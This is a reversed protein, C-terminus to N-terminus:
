TGSNLAGFTHKIMASFSKIFHKLIINTTDAQVPGLVQKCAQVPWSVQAAKNVKRAKESTKM